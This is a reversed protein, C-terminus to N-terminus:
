KTIQTQYIGYRFDKHTQNNQRNNKSAWVWIAKNRQISHNFFLFLFVIVKNNIKRPVENWSNKSAQNSTIKRCLPNANGKALGPVSWILHRAQSNETQVPLSRCVWLLATQPNLRVQPPVRVRDSVTHGRALWKIERGTGDNTFYYYYCRGGLAMPLTFHSSIYLYLTSVCNEKVCNTSLSHGERGRLLRWKQGLGHPCDEAKTGWRM